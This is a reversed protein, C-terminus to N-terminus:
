RQGHDSHVGSAYQGTHLNSRIKAVRLANVLTGARLKGRKLSYGDGESHRHKRHAKNDEAHKKISETFRHLITKSGEEAM